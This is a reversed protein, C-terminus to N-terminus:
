RYSFPKYKWEQVNKEIMLKKFENNKKNSGFGISINNLTPNRLLPIFDQPNLNNAAIYLFEELAPANGLSSIDKLGKLNQLVIRRLQTLEQFSPLEIINKLDQLFLYQLENLSSIVSIDDLGRIMWLELYKINDLGELSSLNKTGGLKIDLSWMKKLPILYDLNPTTISRLTVNELKNLEELVEINKKQGELYIKNLSKFRSLPALDPRKSETRGLFIYEIEPSVDNLFEFSKLDYIGISLSKLIPIKVISEIGKAKWLSNAALHQVNNMISLFSLDWDSSYSGYVRFQVDNRENFFHENLLKLFSVPLPKHFQLTKISKNSRLNIIEKKSLPRYLEYRDSLGNVMSISYM